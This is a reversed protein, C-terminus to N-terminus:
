LHEKLVKFINEAIVKHGKANPHIGDEQNMGREGAVSELLFPILEVSYNKKLDTWINDFEKSYDKGYNPPVKMGALVVKVKQEKLYSLMKVLNNKTAEIPLGRLGDNAGLALVILFPKAKTIWQLRKFGSATTSGSIGASVVQYKTGYVKELLKNLQQPFAEEKSVGYGETLSDGLIFIKKAEPESAMVQVSLLILLVLLRFM